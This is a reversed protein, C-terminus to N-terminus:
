LQDVSLFAVIYYRCGNADWVIYNLKGIDEANFIHYAVGDHLIHEYFADENSISVSGAATIANFFV